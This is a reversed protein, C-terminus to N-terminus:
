SLDINVALTMIIKNSDNYQISKQKVSHWHINSTKLNEKNMIQMIKYQDSCEKHNNTNLNRAVGGHMARTAAM